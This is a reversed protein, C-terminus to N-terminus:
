VQFFHTKNIENYITKDLIDMEIEKYKNNLLNYLQVKILEFTEEGLFADIVKKDSMKLEARVQKIIGGYTILRANFLANNLVKFDKDSMKTLDSIKVPYKSVEAIASNQLDVNNGYVAAEADTKSKIKKMALQTVEPFSSDYHKLCENWEQLIQSQTIKAVRFKDVFDSKLLLLIHIHPHLENRLKAEQSQTTERSAQYGLIFNKFKYKSTNKVLLKFAKNMVNQYHTYEEITPNKVTLTLHYPIFTIQKNVVINELVKYTEVFLKKSRLYCCNSCFKNKCTFFPQMKNKINDIDYHKKLEGTSNDVKLYKVQAYSKLYFSNACADIKSATKKDEIIEFKNIISQNNKRYDNMKDIFSKQKNSM